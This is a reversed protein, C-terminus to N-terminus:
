PGVGDRPPLRSRIAKLVDASSFPKALCVTAGLARPDGPEVEIASLVVVPTNRTEPQERLLRIAEFGDLDPLMLDMTIVDPRRQRALEVGELVRGAEIVRLGGIQLVDRLLARVDPDDDVVLVLPAEEKREEPREGSPAAGATAPLPLRVTFTAGAGPRSDVGIRGGHEEVIGRCIALGLGTGGVARVTRGDLQQFKRFLRGVDEPAIGQGQDTVWIELDAGSRRAGVTVLGREPSFKIANSLLNTVVQVMRDFDVSVVPVDTTVRSEIAIGRSEAFGRIGEVAMEVFDLPRHLELDLHIHGAEMKSIDLINNILRILRDTNKLSIDVLHRQTEDLTLRDDSLLLHLSGKISTLPTRLEHSVTSVFETKMRDIERERTVDRLTITTGVVAGLLDRTPTTLWRLTRREPLRVELDGDAPEGAQEVATALARGGPAEWEVSGALTEVLQALPRGTVEHPDIGLLAGGQRNLAVVRRELDLGLFGDSTSAFVQELRTKQNEAEEFLTANDLAMALQDAYAAVLRTEAETLARPTPFLLLLGGLVRSRGRVPFAALAEEPGLVGATVLDSRAGSDPILLPAERRRLPEALARVSEHSWDGWSIVGSPGGGREEFLVIGARRAGFTQALTGAADPLLRKVDLTRHLTRAAANLLAAGALNQQTVSYLRANEIAVAGQAALSSLLSIERETFVHPQFYSGGLVGFVEDRILIPAAAFARPADPRAMAAANPGSYVLSADALRDACWVPRREAYARGTVGEGPRLLLPRAFDMAHNRSRVPVLGGRAADWRYFGAAACGLAEIVGDSILDIVEDLKLTASLKRTVDLLITADRERQRTEGYLRANNVSTALQQCFLELHAIRRRTVPRRSTKNDVSVVGIPRGQVLLPVLAFRRTRLVPHSHLERALPPVQALQEDSGVMLTIGSDWVVQLGGSARLPILRPVDPRADSGAVLRLHLGDDEGLWVNLRDFSLARNAGTAFIEVREQLDMSRDMAQTLAYLDETLQRRDQIDQFLRAKAIAAASQSVFIELLEQDDPGFHLPGHGSLVLVGLLLDRFIIPVGLFSKLGSRRWWEPDTARPDAAIDAVELHRREAAVWGVDGEGIDVPRRPFQTLGGAAARVEIRKVAADVVWVAVAPVQMLEVAASAIGGLVEEPELSSSVLQNLRALTHLRAARLNLAEHLRANRLLVGAQEGIAQLTALEADEFRRRATWWVLYFAGAVQGDIFLPIVLGSQHPFRRFLPIAFRPDNPLDDSWIVQGSQFVADFGRQEDATLRATALIEFGDKPLHYAAVPRLEAGAAQRVYASVTEAGTLRALERCILRLAEGFDTTASAVRAVALLAATERLRSELGGASERSM